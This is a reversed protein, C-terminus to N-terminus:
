IHILSLWFVWAVEAVGRQVGLHLRARAVRPRRLRLVHRVPTLVRHRVRLQGCQVAIHEGLQGGEHLLNVGGEARGAPMGDAAVRRWAEEGRGHVIAVAGDGSHDDHQILELPREVRCILGRQTVGM